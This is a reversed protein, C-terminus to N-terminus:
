FYSYGSGYKGLSLDFAPKKTVYGPENCLITNYIKLLTEESWAMETPSQSTFRMHTKKNRVTQGPKDTCLIYATGCNSNLPMRAKKNNIKFEKSWMVALWRASESSNM